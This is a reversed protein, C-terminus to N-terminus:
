KGFAYLAKFTRIFIKGNAVAPSATTEEGLEISSIEKLEKDAEILFVKGDRGTCVLKGDVAVPTSRHKGALYRKEVLTEGSKADLCAIAGNKRALFILDDYVVPSAVDSTIRGSAWQLDNKTRKGKGSVPLAWVPGNKASPIIVRGDNYVPSSVFRLFPNYSKGKPNMGGIRWVEEGSDLKHATTYDAGHVILLSGDESEAICPSAYVHKNESVADSNRDAKWNETGTEADLSVLVGRSTEKNRMNGHMLAFLLQGEHLVPTSAMGFQIKFAGYEEELDKSWVEEGDLTFCNVQGNSFMTWVHKGDSSPSNSAGNAGDRSARNKGDVQKRWLEKGGNADFCLVVLADGDVSTTIVRDGVVIPSSGGSGPLEARWLQTSEDLKEVIQGEAVSDLKAGRWQPWDQQAEVPSSYGALVFLFFLVALSQRSLTMQFVQHPFSYNVNYRSFIM